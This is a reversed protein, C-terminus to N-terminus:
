PLLRPWWTGQLGVLIYGTFSSALISDEPHDKNDNRLTRIFSRVGLYGVTAIGANLATLASYKGVSKEKWIALIAGAAAGTFLGSAVLGLDANVNTM